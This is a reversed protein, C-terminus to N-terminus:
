QNQKSQTNDLITRTIVSRRGSPTIVISKLIIKKGAPITITVPGIYENATDGPTNNNLTFYIKAGPLPPTVDLRYSTTAITSDTYNFATPVRYNIGTKDFRELHIPLANAVFRQYSKNSQKTWGTEALALMRPLLM